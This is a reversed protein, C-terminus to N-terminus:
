SDLLGRVEERDGQACYVYVTLVAGDMFCNVKMGAEVFYQFKLHGASYQTRASNSAGHKIGTVRNDKELKALRRGSKPCTSQHKGKKNTNKM